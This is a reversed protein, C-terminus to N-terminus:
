AHNMRGSLAQGFTEVFHNAATARRLKEHLQDVRQSVQKTRENARRADERAEAPTEFDHDDTM